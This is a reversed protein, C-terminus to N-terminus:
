VSKKADLFAKRRRWAWPPILLPASKPRPYSKGKELWLNWEWWWKPLPIPWGLVPTHSQALIKNVEALFSDWPFNPGPDWHTSGKFAESVNVHGTIGRGGNAVAGTNLRRAPIGHRKCIDAVLLAALHLEMKSYPDAWQEATSGARGALEIQIGDHNAGPAAWAVDNEKVCQVVSNVDVCYHASAKPATSGAFWYAINEATTLGEPTEMTHIVVLDVKRTGSVPTYNRAPIFLM